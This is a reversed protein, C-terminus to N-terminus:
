TLRSQGNGVEVFGIVTGTTNGISV